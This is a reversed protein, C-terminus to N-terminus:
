ALLEALVFGLLIALAATGIFLVVGFPMGRRPVAATRAFHRQRNRRRRVFKSIAHQAM